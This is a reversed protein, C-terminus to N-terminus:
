AWREFSVGAGPPSGQYMACVLYACMESTSTRAVGCEADRRTEVMPAAGIRGGRRTLPSGAANTYIATVRGATSGIPLRARRMM